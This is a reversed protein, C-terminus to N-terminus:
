RRGGFGGGGGSRGGGFGGGRSSGGGFGGRGGFSGRGSFGGSSSRGTGSGRSSGGGGFINGGGTFGGGTFGGGTFGGGSSSGGGPRGGGFGGGSTPPRPGGGGRPPPPPRHHHHHYPRHYRPRFWTWPRYWYRRPYVPGMPGGGYYTPGSLAGILVCIVIVIVFVVVLTVVGSFPNRTETYGGYYDITGGDYPTTGNDGAILGLNSETQGSSAAQRYPAMQELMLSTAGTAAQDFDGEDLCDNLWDVIEGPDLYHEVLTGPVVYFDDDGRSLLLLVCSSEISYSDFIREAHSQMDGSVREVAAVYVGTSNDRYADRSLSNIVAVAANSLVGDENLVFDHDASGAGPDSPWSGGMEQIIAGYGSMAAAQFDQEAFAPEIYTAALSALRAATILSENDKGQLLYYDRDGSSMLLLIGDSEMEWENYLRLAYDALSEGGTFEVTVLVVPVGTQAHHQKGYLNITDVADSTLVNAFDNCFEGETPTPLTTGAVSAMTPLAVGVALVLSLLLCFFLRENLTIRKKM